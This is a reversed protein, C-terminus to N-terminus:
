RLNQNKLNLFFSYNNNNIRHWQHFNPLTCNLETQQCLCGSKIINFLFIWPRICVKWFILPRSPASWFESLCSDMFGQVFYWKMPSNPKRSLRLPSPGRGGWGWSTNFISILSPPPSLCVSVVFLCLRSSLILLHCHKGWVYVSLQILHFIYYCKKKRKFFNAM